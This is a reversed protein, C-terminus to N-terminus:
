VLSEESMMRATCMEAAFSRAYAMAGDRRSSARSSPTGSSSAASGIRSPARSSASTPTASLRGSLVCDPSVRRRAGPSIGCPAAVDALPRPRRAAKSGLPQPQPQQHPDRTLLVQPLQQQASLAGELEAVRRSLTLVQAAAAEAEARVAALTSQHHQEAEVARQQQQQMQRQTARLEERVGELEAVPPPGM